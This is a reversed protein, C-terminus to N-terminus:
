EWHVWSCFCVVVSTRAFSDCVPTCCFPTLMNTLSASPPLSPPINFSSALHSEKPPPPNNQRVKWKEWKENLYTEMRESVPRVHLFVSNFSSVSCMTDRIQPSANLRGNKLFTKKLKQSKNGWFYLDPVYMNIYFFVSSPFLIIVGDSYVVGAANRSFGAERPGFSCCCIDKLFFIGLCVGGRNM